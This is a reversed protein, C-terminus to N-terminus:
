VSDYLKFSPSLLLRIGSENSMHRTYEDSDCKADGFFNGCAEAERKETTIIIDNPGIYIVFKAM